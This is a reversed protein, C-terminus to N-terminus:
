KTDGIKGIADTLVAKAVQKFLRTRESRSLVINEKGLEREFVQQLIGILQNDVENQQVRRTVRKLLDVYSGSNQSSNPPNFM